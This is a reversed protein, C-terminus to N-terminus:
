LFNFKQISSGIINRICLMEKEYPLLHVKARSLLANQLDKTNAISFDQDQMGELRSIIGTTLSICLSCTIYLSGNIKNTAEKFPDLVKLLDRILQLENFCSHTPRNQHVTSGGFSSDSNRSFTGADHLVFEM